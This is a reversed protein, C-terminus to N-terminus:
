ILFEPCKSCVGFGSSIDIDLWECGEECACSDSCGCGLCVYEGNEILSIVKEPEIMKKNLNELISDIQQKTLKEM